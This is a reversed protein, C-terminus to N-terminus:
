SLYSLSQLPQPMLDPVTAAPNIGKIPFRHLQKSLSVNRPHSPGGVNRCVPRDSWGAWDRSSSSAGANNNHFVMVVDARVLRSTMATARGFYLLLSEIRPM